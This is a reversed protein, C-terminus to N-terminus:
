KIVKKHRHQYIFYTRVFARIEDVTPRDTNSDTLQTVNYINIYKINARVNIEAALIM